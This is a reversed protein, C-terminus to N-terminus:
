HGGDEVTVVIGEDEPTDVIVEILDPIERISEQISNGFVLFTSNLYTSLSVGFEEDINGAMDHVVFQATIEPLEPLPAWRM